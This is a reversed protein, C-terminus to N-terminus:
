IQKARPMPKQYSSRSIISSLSSASLEFEKKMTELADDRKTKLKRLESYRKQIAATRQEQFEQKTVSM